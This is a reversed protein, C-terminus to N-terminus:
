QVLSTRRLKHFGGYWRRSLKHEIPLQAFACTCQSAFFQVM